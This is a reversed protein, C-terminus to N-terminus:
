ALGKHRKYFYIQDEYPRNADFLWDDDWEEAEPEEPEVTYEDDNLEIENLRKRMEEIKELHEKYEAAIRTYASTVDSRRKQAAAQARLAAEASYYQDLEDSVIQALLGPHLAELADLEAAGVGFAEEFKGARQETEKIPVRPIQYDDVQELTLAIPKLRVDWGEMDRRTLMFELKRAFAAPMSNGAPDFDSIYFIRAPRDAKEIRDVLRNVATISAEGEFTILNAYRMRCVPILVDNMTSKECVVELHYPQANKGGAGYLEIQPQTVDPLSIEHYVYDASAYFGHEIPPPNKNDNIAEIAVLDLYRAYKSAQTLFKWDKETNLYTTDPKPFEKSVCWYHVRRLHVGSQYGATDWVKKFWAAMRLNSPTGVYFPDNAPALALLETVTLGREVALDKISQYDM